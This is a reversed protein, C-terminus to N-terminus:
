RTVKQQECLNIQLKHQYTIGAKKLEFIVHTSKYEHNIHWAVGRLRIITGAELTELEFSIKAACVETISFPEEM